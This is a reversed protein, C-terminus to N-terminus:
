STPPDEAGSGGKVEDTAPTGGSALNLLYEQVKLNLNRTGAKFVKDGLDKRGLDTFGVGAAIISEIANIDGAGTMRLAERIGGPIEMNIQSYARYSCQLKYTKGDLEIEVDGQGPQEKKDM